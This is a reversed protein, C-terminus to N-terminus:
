FSLGRVKALEDYSGTIIRDCLPGFFAVSTVYSDHGSITRVLLGSRALKVKPQHYSLNSMGTEVVVTVTYRQACTLVM